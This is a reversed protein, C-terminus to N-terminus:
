GSWEITQSRRQLHRACYMYLQTNCHTATYRLTDRHAWHDPIAKTPTKCLVYVTSNQLTDCHTSCIKTKRPQRPMDTNSEIVHCRRQLFRIRCTHIVTHTATHQLTDCYTNCHTATHELSTSTYRPHQCTQRQHQSRPIGQYTDPVM